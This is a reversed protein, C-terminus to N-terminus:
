NDRNFISCVQAFLILTVYYFMYFRMCMMANRTCGERGHDILWRMWFTFTLLIRLSRVRFGGKCINLPALDRPATM